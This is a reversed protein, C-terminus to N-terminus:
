DLCLNKIIALERQYGIHDNVFSIYSKDIAIYNKFNCINTNGNAMYENYSSYKWDKPDNVLHATTPNLHIYRTLHLLQEDTEVLVNNFRSEWLPGNRKHKNNFYQSYSKSIRNLFLSIGDDALQSLILHIHTPMICFALIDVLKGDAGYTYTEAGIANKFELYNAFKCIPTSSKYFSLSSLIREYDWENNFIQYGAISRNYIHYVENNALPTRRQPM